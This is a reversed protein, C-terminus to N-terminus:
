KRISEAELRKPTIGRKMPKRKVLNLMTKRERRVAGLGLFVNVSNTLFVTTKTKKKRM